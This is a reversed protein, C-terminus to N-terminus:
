QNKFIYIILTCIILFSIILLIVKIKDNITFRPFVYDIMLSRLEPYKEFLVAPCKFNKNLKKNFSYCSCSIGYSKTKEDYVGDVICNHYKRIFVRSNKRYIRYLKNFITFYIIFLLVTIALTHIIINIYKNM